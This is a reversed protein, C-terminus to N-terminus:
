KIKISGFAARVLWLQPRIQDAVFLPRGSEYPVANCPPIWLGIDSDRGPLVGKYPPVWLVPVYFNEFGRLSRM